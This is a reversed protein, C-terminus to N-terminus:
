DEKHQITLDFEYATYNGKVRAIYYVKEKWFLQFASGHIGKNHRRSQKFIELANFPTAEADEIGQLDIEWRKDPIQNLFTFLIANNM